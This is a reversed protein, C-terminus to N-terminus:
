EKQFLRFSNLIYSRADFCIKIFEYYVLNLVDRSSVEMEKFGKHARINDGKM